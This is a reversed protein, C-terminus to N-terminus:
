SIRHKVVPLSPISPMGTEGLVALSLHSKTLTEPAISTKQRSLSNALNPSKHQLLGASLAPPQDVRLMYQAPTSEHDVDRRM